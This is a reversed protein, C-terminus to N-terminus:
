EVKFLKEPSLLYRVLRTDILIGIIELARSGELHSKTPNLTLGLPSFLEHIDRGV